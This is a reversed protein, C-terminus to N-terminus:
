LLVVHKQKYAKLRIELESLEDLSKGRLKKADTEFGHEKFFKHHRDGNLMRGLKVILDEELKIIEPSKKEINKMVVKELKEQAKKAQKKEEKPDPKEKNVNDLNERFPFEEKTEAM